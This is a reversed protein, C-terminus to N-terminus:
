RGLRVAFRQRAQWVGVALLAVLYALHGLAPLWRLTGLAAARSLETAHWLPTAWALPRLWDPLRSVPYFTGSFLTMPILVFRFFTPFAAGDNERSAAFAMTVSSFAAGCLTAVLLSLVIGPGRVGGLLAIVVVYVAGSTFVRTTIWGLQGCAIQAPTLPAAAMAWYVQQWKFGSLVPYTSEFAATQVASMALLGPALYVLYPVGGLAAGGRGASDVLTGFGLGFALLFLVPQLVSSVVTARWGQRYWTWCSEMVMLSARWGPMVRGTSRPWEQEDTRGPDDTPLTM